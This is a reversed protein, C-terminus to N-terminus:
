TIKSHISVTLTKVLIKMTEKLLIQLLIRM